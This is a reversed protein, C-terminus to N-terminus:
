THLHEVPCCVETKATKLQVHQEWELCLRQGRELHDVQLLPDCVVQVKGRCSTSLLKCSEEPPESTSHPLAPALHLAAWGSSIPHM